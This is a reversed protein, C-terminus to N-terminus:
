VRESKKSLTDQFDIPSMYSWFNWIHPHCCGWIGECTVNSVEPRVHGWNVKLITLLFPSLTHKPPALVGVGGRNNGKKVRLVFGIWTMDLHDLFRYQNM